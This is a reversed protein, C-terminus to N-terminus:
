LKVYDSDKLHEFGNKLLFRKMIEYAGQPSTKSYYKKLKDIEFDFSLVIGKAWLNKNNFQLKTKGWGFIM